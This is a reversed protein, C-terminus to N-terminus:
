RIRTSLPKGPAYGLTGSGNGLRTRQPASSVLKDGVNLALIFWLAQLTTGGRRLASGSAHREVIVREKDILGDLRIAPLSGPLMTQWEQTVTATM